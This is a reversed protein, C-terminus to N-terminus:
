RATEKVKSLLKQEANQEWDSLGNSIDHEKEILLVRMLATGFNRERALEEEDIDEPEWYTAPTIKEGYIVYETVEREITRSISERKEIVKESRIFFSNAEVTDDAHFIIKMDAHERFWNAYQEQSIM